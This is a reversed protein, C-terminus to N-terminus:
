VGGSWSFSVPSVKDLCSPFAEDNWSKIRISSKLWRSAHQLLLVAAQLFGCYIQFTSFAIESAPSPHVSTFLDETWGPSGFLSSNTCTLLKIANKTASFLVISYLIRLHIFQVFLLIVVRSMLVSSSSKLSRSPLIELSVEESCLFLGDWHVSLWALMASCQYPYVYLDHSLEFASLFYVAPLLLFLSGPLVVSVNGVLM